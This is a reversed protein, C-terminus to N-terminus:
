SQHTSRLVHERARARTSGNALGAHRPLSSVGSSTLFPLALSFLSAPPLSILAIRRAFLETRMLLGSLDASEAPRVAFQGVAERPDREVVCRRSSAHLCPAIMYPLLKELSTRNTDSAIPLWKPQSTPSPHLYGHGASICRQVQKRHRQRHSTLGGPRPSLTCHGHPSNYTYLPHRQHHQVFCLVAIVMAHLALRLEPCIQKWTLASCSARKLELSLPQAVLM